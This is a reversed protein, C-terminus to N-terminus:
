NRTTGLYGQQLLQGHDVLGSHRRTIKDKPEFAASALRHRGRPGDTRACKRFNGTEPGKATKSRHRAAADGGAACKKSFKFM